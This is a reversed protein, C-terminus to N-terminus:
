DNLHCAAMRGPAVERLLPAERACRGMARPCRPHFHCGAPPDLPSPVDGQLVTRKRKARPGPDAGRLAAGRLVSAAAIAYLERASAVEVIRGLYMVAIRDSIHEVM